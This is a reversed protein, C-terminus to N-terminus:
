LSGVADIVLHTTTRAYICISGTSSLKAVIENNQVGTSSYNIGSALPRSGCDYITLFGNGSSFVTSLNLTATVAYSPIGGRGAVQVEYETGGAIAGDGESAGDVTDGTSRTDALRAPTIGAYDSGAPFYGVVDVVAHTTTKAYVCITGDASLKAIVENNVVSGAGYNISSALPRTGCEFITLFGNGIAGVTSVNIVAADADSPVGARGAIQIEYETDSEIAGDNLFFGDWTYSSDRTDALRDPTLPSYDSDSPAFGVVDLVIHTTTRAYICITGDNSLKTIIENNVVKGAAYNIASTFPQDGCDFVTLFGNGSSDVTSLNLIAALADSEVGGRGAVQIEYITEGVIAGQGEFRGDITDGTTRTDALRGPTLSIFVPPDCSDGEGDQNRDAQGPNSVESCNDFVDLVGDDDDDPDCTVRTCEVAGADKSTRQPRSVDRQDVGTNSTDTTVLDIAPSDDTLDHSLTMGGNDALPALGPNSVNPADTAAPTAALGSGTTGLVNYGGSSIAKISTGGYLQLDSGTGPGTNGAVISSRLTVAAASNSRAAIGRGTAASNAYVTTFRLSVTGADRAIGGGVGSATNASITTNLTSTNGTNYIGGGDVASNGSITVADLDVIGTNYIGGGDDTATNADITVDTLALDGHNTIGGGNASSAGGTITLGDITVTTGAAISMAGEFGGADLTYGNGVIALPSAPNDILPRRRDADLDTMLTLTYAAPGASEAYCSLARHWLGYTTIAWATTAPCPVEVAGADLGTPPRPLDRQDVTPTGTAGFVRDLAISSDFPLHTETPGGNDALAGLGPNTIGTADNTADGFSDVLFGLEGIVNDGGSAYSNVAPAPAPAFVITVDNDGVNGSVISATITTNTVNDGYSSIGSGLAPATITTNDYITTYAINTTGTNVDVGGGWTDATNGSITSNVINTTGSSFVGGGFQATNGVITSGDISLDGGFNSVGGGTGSGANNSITSDTITVNGTSVHIAAAGQEEAGPPDNMTNGDILSDSISATGDEVWLAAGGRAVNGTFTTNTITLSGATQRIGAGLETEDANVDAAPLSGGTITVGDIAVAAGATSFVRQDATDMGDIVDDAAGNGQITLSSTIAIEGATVVYSGTLSLAIVDAGAGAVCDGGTTDSDANANAIAERLSCVADTAVVDGLTDVTITAAHAPTAGLAFMGTSVGVALAACASATRRIRHRQFM